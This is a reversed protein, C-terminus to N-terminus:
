RALARLFGTLDDTHYDIHAAPAPTPAVHVTAMGLAKPVELNRPMDEFMAAEGPDLGDRAFVRDFAIAEPKPRFGAEEVGYVADFLTSFGRAALVNQAYDATGNTYVICRGPLAAIAEAQAPDPAVVSFDIDHVEKLYGDPAIGHNDMLGALTTGHERWYRLRVADAETADLGLERMVWATMKVNIQSFLETEPPYLTHDLDFVWTTIHSLDKMAARTVRIM